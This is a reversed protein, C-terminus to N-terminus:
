ADKDMDNLITRIEGMAADIVNLRVAIQQKRQQRIKRLRAAKEDDVPMETSDKVLIWLAPQGPRDLIRVVERRALMRLWEQAYDRSVDALEVLDDVTVGSRRMRLLSWMVQRKEPKKTSIAPAYVGKRPRMLRGSVYLESLINLINKHGQRTKAGMAVSIDHVSAEGNNKEAIALTEELVIKTYSQQAM